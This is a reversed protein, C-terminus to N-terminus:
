GQLKAKAKDLRKRIDARKRDYAKAAAEARASLERQEEALAAEEHQRDADVRELEAEISAVRQRQAATPGRKKAPPAPRTFQGVDVAEGRRVVHDPTKMAADYDAGSTLEHALGSKFLDQEVGWAALAKPRSSTAVAYTHFGDSWSFVKLRPAM